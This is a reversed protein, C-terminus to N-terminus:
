GLFVYAPVDVGVRDLREAANEMAGHEAHIVVEARLVQLAIEILHAEAPAV